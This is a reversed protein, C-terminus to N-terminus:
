DEDEDEDEDPCELPEKTINKAAKKRCDPCLNSDTYDYFYLEECKDCYYNPLDM